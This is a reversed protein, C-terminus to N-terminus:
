LVDELCASITVIVSASGSWFTGDSMEALALVTQSDRLRMRTSVGARGARPGLTVGIVYPQPNKETLVHIAKVHDTATMPSDVTVTCPVTNGNEVLPPIDLKVRGPTIRAEGVIGAVAAQMEAPTAQAPAVVVSPGACGAALAGAIKLVDRRTTAGIREGDSM